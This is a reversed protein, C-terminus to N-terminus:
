HPLHWQRLYGEAKARWSGDPKVEIETVLEGCTQMQVVLSLLFIEMFLFLIKVEKKYSSM